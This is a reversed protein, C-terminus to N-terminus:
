NSDAREKKNWPIRGKMASSLKNKTEESMTRNRLKWAEKMRAKTEESKKRGRGTQSMKLRTQESVVRGTGAESLKRRHEDSLRGRGNGLCVNYGHPVLANLKHGWMIEADDLEEQSNCTALECWEFDDPRERLEKHWAHKLRERKCDAMHGSIRDELSHTTQGVYIKGTKKDLVRYIRGYQNDMHYISM